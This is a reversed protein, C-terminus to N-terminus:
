MPVRSGSGRFLLGEGDPAVEDGEIEAEDGIFILDTAVRKLSDFGDGGECCVRIGWRNMM